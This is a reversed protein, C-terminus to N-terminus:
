YNQMENKQRTNSFATQVVAVKKFPERNQISVIRERWNYSHLHILMM